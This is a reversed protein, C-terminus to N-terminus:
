NQGGLGERIPKWFRDSEEIVRERVGDVPGYVKVDKQGKGFVERCGLSMTFNEENGEGTIRKLVEEEAAYVVRGINAWYITGACMACPEWTSYLTCTWLYASSYHKSALLALSSEAHEIHSISLHTLLIEDNPGVLLAAFPRKTHENVGTNQLALCADLHNTQQAVTPSAPRPPFVTM